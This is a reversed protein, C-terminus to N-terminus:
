TVVSSEGKCTRVKLMRVNTAGEFAPRVLPCAPTACIKFMQVMLTIFTVPVEKNLSQLGRASNHLPLNKRGPGTDDFVNM